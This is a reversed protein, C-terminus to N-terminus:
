STDLHNSEFNTFCAFQNQLGNAHRPQFKCPKVQLLKLALEEMVAGTCLIIKDKALFKVTVATKCLCEDSLFPPDVLVVDFTNKWIKPLNLPDRYDYFVFDEGFIKFREDYELCKVDCNNKDLQKIKKYTTPASICVIRGNRGAADLAAEALRVASDDDYWFQSLQWNEQLDTKFVDESGLANTVSEEHRTRQEQDQYFERLAALTHASLQPSDDDSDSM